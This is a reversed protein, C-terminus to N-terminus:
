GPQACLPFDGGCPIITAEFDIGRQDVPQDVPAGGEGTCGNQNNGAEVIWRGNGNDEPGETMTSTTTPPWNSIDMKGRLAAGHKIGNHTFTFAMFPYGSRGKSGRVFILNGTQPGVIDGSPCTVKNRFFEGFILEVGKM